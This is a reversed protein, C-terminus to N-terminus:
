PFSSEHQNIHALLLCFKNVGIDWAKLAKHGCVFCKFIDWVSVKVFVYTRASLHIEILNRGLETWTWAYSPQPLQITAIGLLGVGLGELGASSSFNSTSM